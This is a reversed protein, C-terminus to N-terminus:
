GYDVNLKGDPCFNDGANTLALVDRVQYLHCMKVLVGSPVSRKGNEIMNLYQRSIGLKRATEMPSREGRAARLKAPAIEIEQLRENEMVRFICSGLFGTLM